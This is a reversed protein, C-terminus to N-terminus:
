NPLQLPGNNAVHLQPASVSVCTPCLLAVSHQIFLKGLCNKKVYIWANMREYVCTRLVYMRVYVCTCVYMYMCVRALMCAYMREYM